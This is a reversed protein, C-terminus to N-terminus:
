FLLIVLMQLFEFPIQKNITLFEENFIKIQSDTSFVETPFIRDTLLKNYNSNKETVFSVRRGNQNYVFRFFNKLKDSINIKGSYAGFSIVHRCESDIPIDFINPM